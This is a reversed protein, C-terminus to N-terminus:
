ATQFTFPPNSWYNNNNTLAPTLRSVLYIM